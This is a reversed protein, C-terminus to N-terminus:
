VRTGPGRSTQSAHHSLLIQPHGFSLLHSPTQVALWVQPEIADLEALAPGDDHVLGDRLIMFDTLEDM